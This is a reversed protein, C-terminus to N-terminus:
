EVLDENNGEGRGLDSTCHTHLDGVKKKRKKRNTGRGGDTSMRLVYMGGGGERTGAGCHRHELNIVNELAHVGYEM